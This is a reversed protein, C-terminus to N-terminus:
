KANKFIIEKDEKNLHIYRIIISELFSKYVECYRVIPKSPHNNIQLNENPCGGGCLSWAWCDPCKERALLSLQNQAMSHFVDMNIGDRVDGIKYDKSAVFRHCPYIEGNKDVAVMSIMAGCFRNRKSSIHVRRLVKYINKLSIIRKYEKAQLYGDFKEILSDFEGKLAEFDKDEEFLNICPSIYTSDFGLADLHEVTKLMDMSVPDATARAAVNVENDKLYKIGRIVDDYSGKSKSYYRNADHIEKNGDISVTVAIKNEKIFDSIKKDVLTANTTISFSVKKDYEKALDKAYAAIDKILEFNLLPEGGFFCIGVEKNKSTDMLFKVSEKATDITMMGKDSYEGDHGYCYRCKLNCDQAVFLEISSLNNEFQNKMKFYTNNDETRLVYLSKLTNITQKYEETLLNKEFWAFAEAVPSGEFKLLELVQEDIKYIGGTRSALLYKNKNAEFLKYPYFEMIEVSEM